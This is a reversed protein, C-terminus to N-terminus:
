LNLSLQRKKRRTKQAKKAWRQRACKEVADLLVGQERLTMKKFWANMYAYTELDTRLLEPATTSQRFKGRWTSFAKDFRQVREKSPM